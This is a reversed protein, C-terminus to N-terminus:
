AVNFAQEQFLGAYKVSRPTLPTHLVHFGSGFHRMVSICLSFPSASLECSALSSHWVELRRIIRLSNPLDSSYKGRGKHKRGQKTPSQLLVFLPDDDLKWHLKAELLFLLNAGKDKWVWVSNFKLLFCHSHVAFLWHPLLVLLWWAAWPCTLQLLQKLTGSVCPCLPAGAVSGPSM